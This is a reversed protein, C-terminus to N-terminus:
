LGQSRQVDLCGKLVYAIWGVFLLGPLMGLGVIVAGMTSGSAGGVGLVFTLLTIIFLILYIYYAVITGRM